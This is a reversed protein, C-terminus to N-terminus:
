QSPPPYLWILKLRLPQHLKSLNNEFLYGELFIKFWASQEIGTLILVSSAQGSRELPPARIGVFLNLAIVMTITTTIKMMEEQLRGPADRPVLWGEWADVMGIPVSTASANAPVAVAWAAGTLLEPGVWVKVGVVTVPLLVEKVEVGERAGENAKVIVGAMGMTLTEAEVLQREPGLM